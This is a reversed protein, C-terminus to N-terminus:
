CRGSATARPRPSRGRWRPRSPRSRSGSRRPRRSSARCPRSPASAQLPVSVAGLIWTALDLTVADATATGLVAIRDGASVTEGLAAALASAREWLEGFGIDTIDAGARQRLAPRDAHQAFLAEISADDHENEHENGM